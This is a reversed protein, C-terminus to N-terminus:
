QGGTPAERQFAVGERGEAHQSRALEELQRAQVSGRPARRTVLEGNEDYIRARSYVQAPQSAQAQSDGQVSPDDGAGQYVEPEAAVGPAFGGDLMRANFEQGYVRAAERFTDPSSNFYRMLGQATDEGGFTPLRREINRLEFQQPVGTQEINRILTMVQGYRQMYRFVDPPLRLERSPNELAQMAHEWVGVGSPPLVGMTAARAADTDSVRSRLAALENLGRVLQGISAGQQQVESLAQPSLSGPRTLHYDGISTMVNGRQVDREAFGLTRTREGILTRVAQANKAGSNVVADYIAQHLFLDRGELPANPDHDGQGYARLMQDYLLRYRPEVAGLFEASTQANPVGGRRGGAGGAGGRAAARVPRAEGTSLLERYAPGVERELDEASRGGTVQEINAIGRRLPEPIQALGQAYSQQAAISEPSTPDRRRALRAQEIAQAAMEARSRERALAANEEGIDAFREQTAAQRHRTLGQDFAEAAERARQGEGARMEYLAGPLASPVSGSAATLGRGAKGMTGEAGSLAGGVIGTLSQLAQLAVMARQARTLERSAPQQAQGIAPDPGASPEVAGGQPAGPAGGAPAAPDGPPAAAKAGAATGQAAVAAGVRRREDTTLAGPAREPNPALDPQVTDYQAVSAAPPQGPAGPQPMRARESAIMQDVQARAMRDANQAADPRIVSAVVEAPSGEAVPLSERREFPPVDGPLMVKRSTPDLAPDPRPEPPPADGGAAAFEQTFDSVAPDDSQAVPPAAPAGGRQADRANLFAEMAARRIEETDIAPEGM